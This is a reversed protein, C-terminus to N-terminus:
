HGKEQYAATWPIQNEHPFVVWLPVRPFPGNLDSFPGNLLPFAGILALPSNEPMGGHHVVAGRFLGMLLDILYWFGSRPYLLVSRHYWFGSHPCM